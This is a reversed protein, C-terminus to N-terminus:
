RKVVGRRSRVRTLDSLRRTGLRLSRRAPQGDSDAPSKVFRESSRDTPLNAPSKKKM